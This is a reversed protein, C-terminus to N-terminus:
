HCQRLSGEQCQPIKLVLLIKKGKLKLPFNLANFYRDASNIVTVTISLFFFFSFSDISIAYSFLVALSNSIKVILSVKFLFISFNQPM